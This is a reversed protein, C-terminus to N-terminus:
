AYGAALMDRALLQDEAYDVRRFPVREWAWRAVCGNADSFFASRRRDAASLASGMRDVRPLGDPSFSGFWAELERKVMPTAGPRPLYPGCVLAIGDALSFGELLRALWREDAPTSDQTLFAVHTGQAREMLLNRTAGHSFSGRAVAAVEAGHRRAMEVSGDTSGSDAVLVQLAREVRQSRVAELTQELVRGGNLVPIAVTVQEASAM